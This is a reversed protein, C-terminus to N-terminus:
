SLTRLRARRCTAPTRAQGLAGAFTTASRNKPSAAYLTTSSRSRSHLGNRYDVGDAQMRDYFHTLIADDLQVILGADTITAYEEHLADALAALYEDHSAYYENTHDVSISTPSVIPLFADEVSIGELAKFFNDVDRQMVLKGIYRIPRIRIHRQTGLSGMGSTTFFDPFRSEDRGLFGIKPKEVPRVECGDL